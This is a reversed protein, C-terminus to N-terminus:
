KIKRAIKGYRFVIWSQHLEYVLSNEVNLTLGLYLNHTESVRGVRNSAGVRIMKKQMELGNCLNILRSKCKNVKDDCFGTM